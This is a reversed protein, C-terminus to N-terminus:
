FFAEYDTNNRCGIHTQRIQDGVTLNGVMEFEVTYDGLLEQKIEHFNTSVLHIKNLKKM